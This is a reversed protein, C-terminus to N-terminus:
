NTIVKTILSKEIVEFYHNHVNINKYNHDLIEGPKEDSSIYTKRNTLKDKTALVIFSKKFYKCIIAASRSGTKNVVNGNKLIIDAGIIVADANAIHNSMSADTILDVKINKKALAKAFIVGENKPRSECVIIKLRRNKASWIKFVELLTKSNSLTLVTNFGSIFKEANAYINRYAKDKKAPFDKLFSELGDLDKRKIYKEIKGVYSNVVEFTSLSKKISEIDSELKKISQHNSLFYENIKVVLESSGSVKDTLISKLAIKKAM